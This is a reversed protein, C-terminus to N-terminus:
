GQKKLFTVALDPFDTFLGDVGIKNYFIELFHEFSGKAYAPMEDPEKRFTFPHVELHERHAEATIHNPIAQEAERMGTVLMSYHPGVADAYSAIEGMAGPQLMWECDINQKNKYDIVEHWDNYAILQVLRVSMGLEPLLENRVRKLEDADFCQFFVPDEPKTYGYRKLIELTAEAIDKGENHFYGPSKIEPYIGAQRGCSKNLGLVFEIEEEFTNVRFTSDGLPFRGPFVAHRVGDRVVFREMMRLWRIEELEFDVVHFRGDDRQRGPFQDAVDTVRDLFRDHLVVLRDDATMVLDQELFDAGQAFAMAKAALSHEPLYGSAGRHAIVCKTRSTKM